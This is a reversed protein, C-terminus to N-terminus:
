AAPQRHEAAPRPAHVALLAGIAPRCGGCCSGAGCRRVLEGVTCAGSEIEARITKDSVVQCHCVIM